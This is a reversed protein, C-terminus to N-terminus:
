FKLVLGIGSNTTEINLSIKQKCRKMALENKKMKHLGIALNPIGILTFVVGVINFMGAGIYVGTKPYETKFLYDLTVLSGIGMVLGSGLFVAGRNKQSKAKKYKTQYYVFEQDATIMYESGKYNKPIIKKLQKKNLIVAGFDELVGNQVIARAEIHNKLGDLEYYVINGKSVSDIMCNQIPTKSKMPFVMDTYPSDTNTSKNEQAHISLSSFIIFLIFLFQRM